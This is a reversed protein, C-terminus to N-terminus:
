TGAESSTTLFFLTILWRDSKDQYTLGFKDKHTLGSTDQYTLGFKDQHTLGSTDQYTLGFM